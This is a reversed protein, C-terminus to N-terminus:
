QLESLECCKTTRVHRRLADKRSFRKGCTPGPCTFNKQGSHIMIHRSLDQSRAFGSGCQPCKFDKKRNPDHVKLHSKLNFMRTFTRGCGPHSCYLVGERLSIDDDEDYDETKMFNNHDQPSSLLGAVSIRGQSPTTSSSTNTSQTLESFSPLKPLTIRTPPRGQKLSAYAFEVGISSFTQPATLEFLLNGSAELSFPPLELLIWDGPILTLMDSDNLIRESLGPTTNQSDTSRESAWILLDLSSQIISVKFSVGKLSSV